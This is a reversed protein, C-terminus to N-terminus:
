IIYIPSNNFNIIYLNIYNHIITNKANINCNYLKKKYILFMINIYEAKFVQIINLIEM